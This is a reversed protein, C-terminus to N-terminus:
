RSLEPQRDERAHAPATRGQTSESRMQELRELFCPNVVAEHDFRAAVWSEAPAYEATKTRELAVGRWYALKELEGAPRKALAPNKKLEELNAAVNATAAAHIAAQNKDLDHRPAYIQHDQKPGDDISSVAFEATKRAEKAASIADESSNPDRRVRDEQVRALLASRETEDTRSNAAIITLRDALKDAEEKWPTSALFAYADEGFQAEGKRAYLHYEYPELHHDTVGVVRIEGTWDHPLKFDLANDAATDFYHRAAEDTKDAAQLKQFALAVAADPRRNEILDNMATQINKELPDVDWPLEHRKWFETGTNLPTMSYLVDLTRDIQELNATELADGLTGQEVAKLIGVELVHQNWRSFPAADVGEPIYWSKAEKDWHAGLAHAEDKEKFPVNLFIRAANSKPEAAQAQHSAEAAQKMWQSFPAADVGEPIYWSKAKWDWNAGLKQVESREPYPVDLYVRVEKPKPEHQQAAEPAQNTWRSFPVADVGKPVYWSKAEKDWHAGLQRAEDKEKFPVDLYVRPDWRSFPARDVGEPIFWSKAEKDWHAGLKHAEDREKFPVDLFHKEQPTSRGGSTGTTAPM